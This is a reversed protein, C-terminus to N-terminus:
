DGLLSKEHIKEVELDQLKLSDIRIRHENCYYYELLFM